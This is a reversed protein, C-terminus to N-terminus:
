RSFVGFGVAALLATVLINALALPLLYKWAFAMLQDARVRPLTGRIWVVVSFFFMTKIFFWILGLQNTLQIGVEGLYSDFPFRWGGFFLTTCLAGLTFTNIYEALFFMAFKFGSYETNYGSVLESEAEPLDFPIRNVESLSCTFFIFFAVPQKIINWIDQKEVVDVISLSGTLLIVGVLSLLLPIEYSIAQAVARIGGMLSYKNNSAWGAMMIGLTTLSSISFFLFLGAGVNSVVMGNGVPVLSYVLLGPVFVLVPALSFLIQDADRPVIDEKLMVKLADAFSQFLGAPGLRNPGLRVQVFAILRREWWILLFVTTLVLSAIALTPVILGLGNRVPEFPIFSLLAEYIKILIEM